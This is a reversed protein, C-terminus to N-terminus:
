NATTSSFTARTVLNNNYYMSHLNQQGNTPTNANQSPDFIAEGAHLRFPGQLLIRGFTSLIVDEFNRCMHYATIKLSRAWFFVQNVKCFNFESAKKLEESFKWERPEVFGWFSKVGEGYIWAACYISEVWFKEHICLNPSHIVFGKFKIFYSDCM